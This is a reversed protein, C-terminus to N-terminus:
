HRVISRMDAVAWAVAHAIIDIRNLQEVRDHSKALEDPTLVLGLLGAAEVLCLLMVNTPDPIEDSMLEQRLRAKLERQEREDIISYRGGEERIIGKAILGQLATRRYFDAHDTTCQLATMASFEAGALELQQLADDLIVDGTPTLDILFFRDLDADMRNRLALEMLTAGAVVVEFSSSPLEISRGGAYDLQLLVIEEAFDLM